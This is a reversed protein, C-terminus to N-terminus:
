RYRDYINLVLDAYAYGMDMPGYAKLGSRLSGYHAILGALLRTGYHVNFDPSRLEDISPRGAFCPQGGCTFSAAYGDRPMVQMLGVAGSSSYAEPNGGSEQLMVAAILNSDVEHAIAAAEIQSKWQQIYHPYSSSLVQPSASGSISNISIKTNGAHDAPLSGSALFSVRLLVLGSCIVLPIVAIKPHINMEGM